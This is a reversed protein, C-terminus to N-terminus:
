GVVVTMQPQGERLPPALPEFDEFDASAWSLMTGASGVEISSVAHNAIV